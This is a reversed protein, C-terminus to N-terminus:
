LAKEEGLKSLYLEMGDDRTNDVWHQQIEQASECRPQRLQTSLADFFAHDGMLHNQVLAYDFGTIPRDLVLIHCVFPAL